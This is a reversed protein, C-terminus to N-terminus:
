AEGEAPVAARYVGRYAPPLLAAIHQMIIETNRKLAQDRQRRELPPLTVVKGFRVHIVPRQLRLLSAVARETGWIGVPLVPADAQAALFAVGARAPQLAASRSRTGEPAIGLMWGNRLLNRAARLADVDLNERDLWIGEAQNVVWRFLVNRQHKRAVIASIDPRDVLHFILPADLVSLHNLTLLCAGRMPVNELGSVELRALCRFLFGFLRRLFSRM